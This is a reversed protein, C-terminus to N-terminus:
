LAPVPSGVQYWFGQLGDWEFDYLVQKGAPVATVPTFLKFGGAGGNFGYSNALAGATGNRIAITIRQAVGAVPANAPIGIIDGIDTLIALTFYNGLSADMAPTAGHVLAIANVIARAAGGSGLVETVWGLIPDFRELNGTGKNFVQQDPAPAGFRATRDATSQVVPVADVLQALTAM